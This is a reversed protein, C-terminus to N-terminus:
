IKEHRAVRWLRIEETGFKFTKVPILKQPPDNYLTDILNSDVYGYLWRGKPLIFWNAEIKSLYLMLEDLTRHGPEAWFERRYRRDTLNYKALYFRIPENAMPAYIVDGPQTIVALDRALEPYPLYCSEWNTFNIYSRDGMARGVELYDHDHDQFFCAWMLYLPLIVYVIWLQYSLRKGTMRDIVISSAILLGLYYPLAQRVNAAVSSMCTLVYHPAIWAGLVWFPRKNALFPLGIVSILFIAAIPYTVGLPIAKLNAIWDELIPLHLSAPVDSNFESLKMFLVLTVAPILGAICSPVLLSWSRKGKPFMLDLLVMLAFAPVISAATHKYLCAFTCFLTGRILNTPDKYEIFRIWHYFSAITFFLIGGEIMHTNGYHFMPPLFLYLLSALRGATQTAYLTAIRYAYVAGAFFFLQQLVRGIWEHLGLAAYLPILTLKSLPPYRFLVGADGFQELLNFEIVLWMWVMACFALVMMFTAPQNHMARAISMYKGLVWDRFWKCAAIAILFGVFLFTILSQVPYDLSTSLTDVITDAVVAPAAAHDVTDLGTLIPLNLFPMHLGMFVLFLLLFFSSDQQKPIDPAEYKRSLVIMLRFLSTLILFVLFLAAGTIIRTSNSAPVCWLPYVFFCIWWVM